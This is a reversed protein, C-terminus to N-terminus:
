FVRKSSSAPGRASGWLIIPPCPAPSFTSPAPCCIFSGKLFAILPGLYNSASSIWLRTTATSGPCYDRETHPFPCSSSCHPRAVQLNSGGQQVERAPCFCLTWSCKTVHLLIRDQKNALANQLSIQTHRVDRSVCGWREGGAKIRQKYDNNRARIRGRAKM